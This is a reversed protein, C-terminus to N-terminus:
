RVDFAVARRVQDANRDTVVLELVYPGPALKSLDVTARLDFAGPVDASSARIRSAVARLAGM